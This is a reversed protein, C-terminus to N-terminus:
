ETTRGARPQDALFNVVRGRTRQDDHLLDAEFADRPRFGVAEIEDAIGQESEVDTHSSLHPCYVSLIGAPKLVRLVETFLAKRDAATSRRRPMKSGNSWGILHVVDYLLVVDASDAELPLPLGGSTEVAVVNGLGMAAMRRTLEKLAEPDKDLGHVKGSPGVAMAAAGAYNGYRCGFDLVVHGPRLGVRSLLRMGGNRQWAETQAPTM